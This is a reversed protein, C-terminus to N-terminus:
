GALLSPAPPRVERPAQGVGVTTEGDHLAAQAAAEARVAEHSMPRARVAARALRRAQHADGRGLALASGLLM